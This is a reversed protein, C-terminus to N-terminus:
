NSANRKRWATVLEEIGYQLSIRSTYGADRELKEQSYYVHGTIANIRSEKLPFRPLLKCLKALIRVPFEPLRLKPMDIALASTIYRVLLEMSCSQSIIYTQLGTVSLTAPLMLADVVNDVHVYNVQAGKKGVFFFLRRQIVAILQFLSQNPMDPGYVNSPRMIWTPLQHQQAHEAVIFDAEAKSCEYANHPMLVSNETVIADGKAGYVGTSSLQVWCSTKAMMADLLNRTGTVNVRRMESENHLEAALHYIIDAGSVFDLLSKSKVGVDGLFGIAGPFFDLCEPKRTLFRVENGLLLHRHALRKGIFGTAGTIAIIM